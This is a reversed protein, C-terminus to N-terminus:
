ECVFMEAEVDIITIVYFKVSYISVEKLRMKEGDYRRM